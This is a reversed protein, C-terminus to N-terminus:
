DSTPYNNWIQRQFASFGQHPPDIRQEPESPAEIISTEQIPLNNKGPLHLHQNCLQQVYRDLHSIPVPVNNLLLFDECPLLAKGQRQRTEHFTSTGQLWEQGARLSADKRTLQIQEQITDVDERDYDLYGGYRPTLWANLSDVFMDLLPFVIDTYLFHRAERLNNYTSDSLGLLYAPFNFFIGAIDRDTKLDTNLFDLEMPTMALSQWHVGGHLIVTEGASRPGAFKERIERKLHLYDQNNLLQDTIWAGGPRAM